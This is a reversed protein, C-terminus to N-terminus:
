SNRQRFICRSLFYPKKKSMFSNTSINWISDKLPSSQYIGIGEQSELRWVFVNEM